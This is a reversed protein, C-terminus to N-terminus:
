IGALLFLVICIYRFKLNELLLGTMVHCLTNSIPYAIILYKLYHFM